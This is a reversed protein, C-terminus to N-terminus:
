VSAKRNSTLLEYTNQIHKFKMGAFFRISPENRPNINALFRRVNARKKILLRVAKKGVGKDRYKKFLFIGIEDTKSLYIGGVVQGDSLILYWAKYPKLKVFISHQKLTPLRRHSINVCSTREKMLDYLVQVSDKRRYVDVLRIM